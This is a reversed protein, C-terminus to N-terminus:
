SKTTQPPVYATYIAHVDAMHQDITELTWNTTDIPPLVDIRVTGGRSLLTRPPMVKRIGQLVLPIMPAKTEIAMHFPGRKFPLMGDTRSRTGEPALVVKVAHERITGAAAAMTAMAAERNSRDISIMELTRMTRGLIPIRHFEKKYLVKANEPWISSVVLLDIVSQHNFLAIAAGPKDLHERGHVQLGIGAIRLQTRGWTSIIWRARKLCFSPYVYALAAVPALFGFAFLVQLPLMLLGRLRSRVQPDWAERDVIPLSPQTM